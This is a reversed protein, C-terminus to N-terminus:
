AQPAVTAAREVEAKLAQNFAEFNKKTAALLGGMLPVLIGTFTEGHQLRTGGDAAVLDFRHRGDFLGTIGLHGLWELVRGPEVVTLGPRMKIKPKRFVVELREGVALTGAISAFLPNWEFHAFDVLVRWVAEPPAAIQVVTEIKRM